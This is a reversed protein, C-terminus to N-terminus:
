GSTRGSMTMHVAHHASLSLENLQDHGSTWVMLRSTLGDAAGFNRVQIRRDTDNSGATFDGEVSDFALTGHSSQDLDAPPIAPSLPSPM